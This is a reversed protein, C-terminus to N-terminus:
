PTPFDGAMALLTLLGITTPFYTQNFDPSEQLDLITRFARDRLVNNKMAMGGVGMPGIYTGQNDAAMAYSQTAPASKAVKYFGAKMLDISAGGPGYLGGFYDVIAKLATTNTGGLCVDLGLRWPVRAADYGMAGNNGDTIASTVGAAGPGTPSGGSTSWDTPIGSVPATVNATVMAFSPDIASTFAFKRFAYPSFYSPNFQSNFKSGATLLNSKIDNSSIALAMATAKDKYKMSDSPWQTGAMLLAYAIDLDADSASGSQNSADTWTMLGTGELKTSVYGWFKDFTTKDGMAAAIMLGYGMAESTVQGKQEPSVVKNDKVFNKQWSAYAQAIASGYKAANTAPSCTGVGKNQPFPATPANNSPSPTTNACEGTILQVDDVWFDFPLTKAFPPYAESALWGGSYNKGNNFDFQLQLLNAGVADRQANTLNSPLSLPYLDRDFCYTFTKFTTSLEAAGAGPSIFQGVHQYCTTTVENCLGNSQTTSQTEPTALNFRIPSKSDAAAGLKAKFRIGTFQHSTADYKAPMKMGAFNMGLGSYMTYGSGTVHLAYKDCDATGGSAEITMKQTTATKDNYIYWTGARGENALVPPEMASTPGEEFDSVMGPKIACGGPRTAGGGAGGTGAGAAGGAGGGGSGGAGGSCVGSACTQGAGCAMACGGCNLPDNGATNICSTPSCQTLPAACAASCLGSGCFPATTPCITGCTGCNMPDSQTSACMAGCTTLPAACACQSAQCSTGVTCAKDCMGCNASNTSMDVCVGSCSTPTTGSCMVSGGGAGTGATGVAGGAGANANPTSTPTDTSSCAFILLPTAAFLSAWLTRTRM